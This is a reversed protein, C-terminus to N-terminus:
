CNTVKPLLTMSANINLITAIQVRNPQMEAAYFSFAPDIVIKDVMLPSKM